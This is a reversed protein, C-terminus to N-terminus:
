GSVLTTQDIARPQTALYEAFGHLLVQCTQAEREGADAIRQVERALELARAHRADRELSAVLPRLQGLLDRREAASLGAAMAVTEALLAALDHQMRSQDIAVAAQTAFLSLTELDAPTFGAQGSKDMLEIVGIIRDAYALPVCVLNRPTFGTLRAIEGAHRPNAGVDAIAMAQGTVAVLGAIGRGLPVRLKRFADISEGLAVEFVLEQTAEDLLFLSGRDAHLVHAATAVILELLPSQGSPAAIAGAAAARRFAERVAGAVADGALRQGLEALEHAQRAVLARLEELGGGEM